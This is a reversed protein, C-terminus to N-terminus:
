TAPKYFGPFIAPKTDRELISIHLHKNYPSIKQVIPKNFEKALLMIQEIIEYTLRSDTKIDYAEGGLHDSYRAGRIKKNYKECRAGSSIIFAQGVQRRLLELVSLSLPTPLKECGCQCQVEYRKFHETLQAQPNKYNYAKIVILKKFMKPLKDYQELYNMTEGQCQKICTLQQRGETPINNRSKKQM